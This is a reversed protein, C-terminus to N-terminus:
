CVSQVMPLMGCPRQRVLTTLGTCNAFTGRPLERVPVIENVRDILVQRQDELASSDGGSTRIRVIDGNLGELDSLAKNLQDIKDAAKDVCVVHHGFDSFCVGSVLGVYGTGIMAIKM